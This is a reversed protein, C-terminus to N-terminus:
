KITSLLKSITIVQNPTIITEEHFLNKNRFIKIIWTIKDLEVKDFLKEIPIGSLKSLKSIQNADLSGEGAIVRNLALVPYKNGPFLQKAIEKKEMKLVIKKLNIM